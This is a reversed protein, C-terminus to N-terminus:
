APFSDTGGSSRRVDAIAIEIRRHLTDDGGGFLGVRVIKDRRELVIVAALAVVRMDALAAHLQGTSLPLADPERARDDLIRRNQDEVFRGRREVAFALVGDLRRKLADHRVLGYDRDRVPQRCEPLHIADDYHLGAMDDLVARMLIQDAFRATSVRHQPGHLRSPEQVFVRGLTAM